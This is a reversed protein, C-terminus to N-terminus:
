RYVPFHAWEPSMRVISSRIASTTRASHHMARAMCFQLARDVISEYGYLTTTARDSGCNVYPVTM